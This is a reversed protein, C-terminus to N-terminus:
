SNLCTVVVCGLCLVPRNGGLLGENQERTTLEKWRGGGAVVVSRSKM